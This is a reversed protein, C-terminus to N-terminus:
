VASYFQPTAANSSSGHLTEDLINQTLDSCKGCQAAVGISKRLASINTAGDYIASKIAKDTIGRCLCVYM